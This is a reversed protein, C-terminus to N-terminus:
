SAMLIQAIHRVKIPYGRRDIVGQLNMLCGADAGILYDAGAERINEVKEAAMAGSLPGLKVSFTGGFGCCKDQGKFDVLELGAVQKLLALPPEKVGLLRTMHCSPHYAAKAKLSAGIDTKQLINVIFDTLEYIKNSLLRAKEQLDPQDEFFKPYEKVQLTCSGSPCVVYDSPDELLAEMQLQMAKKAKQQFGSNALPQGCCTQKPNFVVRCGLKELLLVSDRSVDPLVTDTLCTSFFSITKM